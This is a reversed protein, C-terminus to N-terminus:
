LKTWDDHRCKSRQQVLKNVEQNKLKFFDKKIKEQVKKKTDAMLNAGAWLSLLSCMNQLM